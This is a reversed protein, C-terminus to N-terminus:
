GAAAMGQAPMGVEAADLPATAEEVLQGVAGAVTAEGAEMSYVAVVAAM